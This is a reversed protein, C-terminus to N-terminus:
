SSFGGQARHRLDSVVANMVGDWDGDCSQRYLKVSSYWPSDTRNKLWRWCADFRNLIWVPKGMAAALHATSTDVSIVLDLQQIMAATDSFDHLQAAFDHVVFGTESDHNLVDLEAEAEVGKQLSFFDADLGKLQKLYRIPLNRRQNLHWLKPQNPRFGGSWVLGVKYRKYSALRQQWIASADTDAQLYGDPSPITQLTTEFLWPLSMLPCQFDFHAPEEGDELFQVVGRLQGLLRRLALPVDLITHAGRQQVQEIYRCFQLTDGLGQEAYILITKGQLDQGMWMPQQAPFVRAPTDPVARWRWEHNTWGQAYDGVALQSLSLNFHAAAFTPNLTIARQYDAIAREFNNRLHHVFGRNVYADAYNPNLAIARDFDQIAAELQHLEQLTVGRNNYIAAHETTLAIAANYSALAEDFRRLKQLAAGKNSLLQFDNPQKSLAFEYHRVANAFENRQHFALAIEFDTM